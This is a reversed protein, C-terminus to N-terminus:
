SQDEKNNEERLFALWGWGIGCGIFYYPFDSWVFTTGILAAGWFNARIPELFAPHWLQSFELACTVGLVWAAIVWPRTKPLLLAFFLCWFIEYFIGSVSNNVWFRAPGPYRKSWLGLVIIVAMSIIIQTKRDQLIRKM